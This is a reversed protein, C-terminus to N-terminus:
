PDQESLLIFRLYDFVQGLANAAREPDAQKKSFFGARKRFKRLILHSAETPDIRNHWFDAPTLLQVGAKRALRCMAKTDDRTGARGYGENTIVPLRHAQALAVLVRDASTGSPEQSADVDAVVTQWDRWLNEFLYHIAIFIFTRRMDHREPPVARVLVKWPEYYLSFTRAKLRHLYELLVLSERVRARRYIMDADFSTKMFYADLVDHCSLVDILVNTDLIAITGHFDSATPKQLVM